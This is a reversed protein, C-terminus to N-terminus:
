GIVGSLVDMVTDLDEPQNYLHPALRVAGERVVCGVGARALARHTGAADAPRFAFIGSRREPRSDSTVEVGREGLWAALPDLLGLSRFLM